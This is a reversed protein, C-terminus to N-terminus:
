NNLIHWKKDYSIFKITFGNETIPIETIDENYFYTDQSLIVNLKVSCYNTITIEQGYTEEINPLTISPSPDNNGTLFIYEDTNELHITENSLGSIDIVKINNFEPQNLMAAKNIQQTVINNINELKTANQLQSILELIKDKDKHIKFRSM